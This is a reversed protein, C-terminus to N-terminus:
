QDERYRVVLNAYLVPISTPKDTIVGNKDLLYMVPTVSINFRDVVESNFGKFDSVNIWEIGFHNMSAALSDRDEALTFSFIKFGKESYENNIKALDPLIAECHDCGHSWLVLLTRTGLENNLCHKKGSPTTGCVEPVKMGISTNRIAQTRQSYVQKLTQNSLPSKLYHEEILYLFVPEWISIEFNSLFLEICYQYVEPNAKAKDLIFSIMKIYNETAAPQGFTKLYDNIMVFLVETNIMRSDSFDLRDFFHNEYYEKESPYPQGDNMLYFQYDPQQFAWILKPAFRGPYEKMMRLVYDIKQQELQDARNQLEDLAKSPKGQSAYYLERGRRIVDDLTDRIRFYYQWYGFLLTNEVSGYVKMKGIIDPLSSELIIDEGGFVIDTFLTDNFVVKYVGHPLSSDVEFSVNGSSIKSSDIAFVEKGKVECLWGMTDQVGHLTYDIRFIRPQASTQLLIVIFFLTLIYFSTKM